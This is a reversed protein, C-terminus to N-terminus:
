NWTRRTTAICSARRKSLAEVTLFAFLGQVLAYVVGVGALFVLLQQLRTMETRQVEILKAVSEPTATATPHPVPQGLLAVATAAIAIALFVALAALPANSGAAPGAGPTTSMNILM